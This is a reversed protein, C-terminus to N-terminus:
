RVGALRLLEAAEQYTLGQAHLAAELAEQAQRKHRSATRTSGTVSAWHAASSLCLRADQAPNPVVRAVIEM